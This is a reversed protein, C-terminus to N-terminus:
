RSIVNYFKQLIWAFLIWNFITLIGPHRMYVCLVWPSVIFGIFVKSFCLFFALLVRLAERATGWGLVSRAKRRKVESNPHSRTYEVFYPRQRCTVFDKSQSKPPILNQFRSTSSQWFSSLWWTAINQRSDRVKLCDYFNFLYFYGVLPNKGVWFFYTKWLTKIPSYWCVGGMGTGGAFILMSRYFHM